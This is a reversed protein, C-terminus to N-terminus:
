LVTVVVTDGDAELTFTGSREVPLWHTFNWACACDSTTDEASLYDYFTPNEPLFGLRRRADLDGAPRGLVEVRGATPRLLDVLLKLTTSKGAGNHGLLGFVGGAPIEFSLSDLARHPRPRFFGSTFDKSLGEARVVM